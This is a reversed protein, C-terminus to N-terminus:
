WCLHQGGGGVIVKEINLLQEQNFSLGRCFLFVLFLYMMELLALFTVIRDKIQTDILSSAPLNFLDIVMDM